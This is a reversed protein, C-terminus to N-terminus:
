RVAAPIFSLTVSLAFTAIAYEICLAAVALGRGSEGTLKIQNLSMHGAGVAFVALVAAGFVWFGCAALLALVFAAIRPAARPRAEGAQLILVARQHPM